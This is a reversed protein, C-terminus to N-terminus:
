PMRAFIMDVGRTPPDRSGSRGQPAAHLGFLASDDNGVSFREFSNL